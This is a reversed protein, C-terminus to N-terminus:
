FKSLLKPAMKMWHHVINFIFLHYQYSVRLAFDRTCHSCFKCRQWLLLNFRKELPVRGNKKETYSSLACSMPCPTGSLIDSGGESRMINEGLDKEHAKKSHNRVKIAVVKSQQFPDSGIYELRTWIISIRDIVLMIYRCKSKLKNHGMKAMRATKKKWNEKNWMFKKELNLIIIVFYIWKSFIFWSNLISIGKKKTGLSFLVLNAGIEKTFNGTGDMQFSFLQMIHPRLKLTKRHPARTRGPRYLVFLWLIFLLQLVKWKKKNPSRSRFTGCSGIDEEEPIGSKLPFFCKATYVCFSLLLLLLFISM